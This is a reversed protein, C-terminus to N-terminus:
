VGPGACSEDGLARRRRSGPNPWDALGPTWQDLLESHVRISWGATLADDSGVFTDNDFEFRFLKADRMNTAGPLEDALVHGLAFSGMPGVICNRRFQSYVAPEIQSCIDRETIGRRRDHWRETCADWNDRSLRESDNMGTPRFEPM